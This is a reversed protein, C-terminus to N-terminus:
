RGGGSTQTERAAKQGLNKKFAAIQQQFDTKMDLTISKFFHQSYYTASIYSYQSTEVLVILDEGVEGIKETNLVNEHVRLRTSRLSMLSDVFNSTIFKREGNSNITSISSNDISPRDYTVQVVYRWEDHSGGISDSYTIPRYDVSVQVIRPPAMNLDSNDVSSDVRGFFVFIGLLLVVVCAIAVGNPRM